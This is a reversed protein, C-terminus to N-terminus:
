RSRRISGSAKGLAKKAAAGLQQLTAIKATQLQPKSNTVHDGLTKATVRRLM